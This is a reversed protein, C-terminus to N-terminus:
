GDPYKTPAFSRSPALTCQIESLIPASAELHKWVTDLEQNSSSVALRWLNTKIVRLPLFRKAPNFKSSNVAIYLFNSLVESELAQSLFEIYLLYYM